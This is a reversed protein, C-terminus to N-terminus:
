RGAPGSRPPGPDSVWRSQCQWVRVHACSAPNKPNEDRWAAPLPARNDTDPRRRRALPSAPVAPSRPHQGAPTAPLSAKCDGTSQLSPAQRQLRELDESRTCYAAHAPDSDHSDAGKRPKDFQIGGTVTPWQRRSPRESDSVALRSSRDHHHLPYRAMGTIVALPM